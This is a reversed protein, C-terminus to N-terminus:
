YNQTKILKSCYITGTSYDFKVEKLEPRIEIDNCIIDGAKTFEIEIKKPDKIHIIPSSKGDIWRDCWEKNVDDISISCNYFKNYAEINAALDILNVATIRLENNMNINNFDIRFPYNGSNFSSRNNLASARKWERMGGGGNFGKNDVIKQNGLSPEAEPFYFDISQDFLLDAEKKHYEVYAYYTKSKDLYPNSSAYAYGEVNDEGGTLMYMYDRPEWNNELSLYDFSVAKKLSSFNFSSAYNNKDINNLLSGFGTIVGHERINKDCWEKSPENGEGFADTLDVLIMKNLFTNNALNILLPSCKLEANQKDEQTWEFIASMINWEENFTAPMIISGTIICFQLLAIGKEAKGYASIYYKHNKFLTPIKQSLVEENVGSSANIRFCGNSNYGTSNDFSCTSRLTWVGSNSCGSSDALLNRVQKHNYRVKNCYLEGNKGIKWM